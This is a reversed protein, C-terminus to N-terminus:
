EKNLVERWLLLKLESDEIEEFEKFDLVCDTCGYGMNDNSLIIPNNMEEQVKFTIIWDYEETKDGVMRQSHARLAYNGKPLLIEFKGDADTKTSVISKLNNSINYGHDSVSLIENELSSRLILMKDYVDLTSDPVSEKAGIITRKLNNKVLEVLTDQNYVNVEVLGLKFNQGGKTVVFVDGSVKQPEPSCSQLLFSLVLVLAAFIQNM